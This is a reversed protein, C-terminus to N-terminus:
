KKTPNFRSHHRCVGQRLIPFSVVADRKCEGKDGVWKTSDPSACNDCNTTGLQYGIRQWAALQYGEGENIEM